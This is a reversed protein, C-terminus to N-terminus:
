PLFGGHIIELTELAVDHKAATLSPGTWSLPLVNHLEWRAVKKRRDNNLQITCSYTTATDGNQWQRAVDSLWNHVLQSTQESMARVLTVKQYKIRDPLHTTSSLGGGVVIEKMAFDVRLGTCSQWDGLDKPAPGLTVSFNMALGYMKRPSTPTPPTRLAHQAILGASAPGLQMPMLPM